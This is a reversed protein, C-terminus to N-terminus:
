VKCLWALFVTFDSDFEDSQAVQSKRWTDHTFDRRGDVLLDLIQSTHLLDVTNVLM